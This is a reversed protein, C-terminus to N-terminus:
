HTISVLFCINWFRISTNLIYYNQLLNISFYLGSNSKQLQRKLFFNKWGIRQIESKSYQTVNQWVFVYGIAELNFKFQRCMVSLVVRTQTMVLVPADFDFSIACM